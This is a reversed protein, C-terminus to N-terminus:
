KPFMASEVIECLIHYMLTHCEQIRASPKACPADLLVDAVAACQGGGAGTFAITKAGLKRGAALAKVVNASNGSTSLGIAIDGPRAKGELQRSFIVSFDYDNAIATMTAADTTLAEARLPPRDYLFRGVFEGVIHQADAASGGNGFVFVTGGAKLSAVIVDAAQAIRPALASAQRLIALSEDFRKQIQNIATQM